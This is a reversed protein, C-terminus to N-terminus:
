TEGRAKMLGPKGEGERRPLLSLFIKRKLLKGAYVTIRNTEIQAFNQMQVTTPRIPVSTSALNSVQSVQIHM